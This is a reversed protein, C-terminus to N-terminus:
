TNLMTVTNEPSVLRACDPKTLCRTLTQQSSLLSPTLQTQGPEALPKGFAQEPDQAVCQKIM